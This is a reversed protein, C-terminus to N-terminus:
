RDSEEDSKEFRVHEEALANTEATEIIMRFTTFSALCSSAKPIEEKASEEKRKQKVRANPFRTQLSFQKLIESGPRSQRSLTTLKVKALASAFMKQPTHNTKNMCGLKEREKKKRKNNEKEQKV